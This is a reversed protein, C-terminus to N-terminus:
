AHSERLAERLNEIVEPWEGSDTLSNERVDLVNHVFEDCWDVLEQAAQEIERFRTHPYRHQDVSM